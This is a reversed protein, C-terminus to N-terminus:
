LLSGAFLFGQSDTIEVRYGTPYLFASLLLRETVEVSSDGDGAFVAGDSSDSLSSFAEAPHATAGGADVITLRADSTTLGPSVAAIILTWNTGDGSRTISIRLFRQVSVIGEASLTVNTAEGDCLTITTNDTIQSEAEALFDECEEGTWRPATPIPQLSCPASPCGGILTWKAARDM